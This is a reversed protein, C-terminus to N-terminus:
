HRCSGQRFLWRRCGDRGPGVIHVRGRPLLRFSEDAFIDARLFRCQLPPM